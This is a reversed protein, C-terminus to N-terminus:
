GAVDMVASTGELRAQNNGDPGWDSSGRILSNSSQALKAGLRLAYSSGLVQGTQEPTLMQVSSGPTENDGFGVPAETRNRIGVQALGQAHASLGQLLQQRLELWEPHETRWNQAPMQDLAHRVVASPLPWHTQPLQLGAEDVLRQLAHRQQWTPMFPTSATTIAHVLHTGCLCLLVLYKKM